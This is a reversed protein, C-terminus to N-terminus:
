KGSSNMENKVVIMSILVHLKKKLLLIKVCLINNRWTNELYASLLIIFVHGIWFFCAIIGINAYANWKPLMNEFLLGFMPSSLFSVNLISIILFAQNECRNLISPTPKGVMSTEFM